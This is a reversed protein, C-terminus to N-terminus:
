DNGSIRLAILELLAAAIVLMETCSWARDTRAGAAADERPSDAHLPASALSPFDPLMLARFAGLSISRVSEHLERNLGV